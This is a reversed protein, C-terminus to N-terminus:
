LRNKKFWHNEKWKSSNKELDFGFEYKGLLGLTKWYIQNAWVLIM